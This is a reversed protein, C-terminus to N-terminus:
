LDLEHKFLPHEYIAKQESGFIFTSNILAYYFPKIGYRDRACFLEQKVKDYVAFAFMGNFKDLCAKGWEIYSYLIVETDCTSRFHYGLSLLEEKLERFNYLEGNYVIAYNGGNSLMPQKGNDSLDIISLRRHGLAVARDNYYGEGDPGRHAIADTMKRLVAQSSREGNLNMYGCIGCM